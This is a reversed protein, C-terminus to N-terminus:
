LRDSLDALVRFTCKYHRFFRVFTVMDGRLEGKTGQIVTSRDCESETVTDDASLATEKDSMYVQVSECASMTMSATVGGVYEINVVQHDVVDNGAQYVCRGYPGTRLAETVNEIDM